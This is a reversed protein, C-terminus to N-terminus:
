FRPDVRGVQRNLLNPYADAQLRCWSPYASDDRKARLASSRFGVIRKINDQITSSLLQWRRVRSVLYVHTQQLPTIMDQSERSLTKEKFAIEIWVWAGGSDPIYPHM